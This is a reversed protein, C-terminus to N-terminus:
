RVGKAKKTKRAANKRLVRVTKRRCVVKGGKQIGSKKRRKLVEVKAPMQWMNRGNDGRDAEQVYPVTAMERSQNHICVDGEGCM